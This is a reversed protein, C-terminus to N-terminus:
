RGTLRDRPQQVSMTLAIAAGEVPEDLDHIGIQM